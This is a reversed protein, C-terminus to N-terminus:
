GQGAGASRKKSVARICWRPAHLLGIGAFGKLRPRFGGKPSFFLQCHPKEVNPERSGTRVTKAAALRGGATLGPRAPNTSAPSGSLKERQVPESLLPFDGCPEHPTKKNRFRRGIEKLQGIALEKLM